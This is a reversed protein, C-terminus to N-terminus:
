GSLGLAALDSPTLYALQFRTGLQDYVPNDTGQSDIFSLDGIFGLYSYRILRNRDYASVSATVITGNLLVTVFLGYAFQFIQVEVAQGNLQVQLVQNPLPQTPVVLM